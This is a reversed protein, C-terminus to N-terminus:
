LAISLDSPDLDFFRTTVLSVLRLQVGEQIGEMVIGIPCVSRYQEAPRAPRFDDEDTRRCETNAEHALQLFGAPRRFRYFPQNGKDIVRVM